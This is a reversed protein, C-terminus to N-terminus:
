CDETGVIRVELNSEFPTERPIGFVSFAITEPWWVLSTGQALCAGPRFTVEMEIAAHRGPQLVFPDWADFASDADAATIRTLDPTVRVPELRVEDRLEGGVDDIRIAVPGDNAISFRYRFRTEGSVPMEFVQGSAGLGDVDIVRIRQDQPAYGRFGPVFPDYTMVWASGSVLVAVIAAM